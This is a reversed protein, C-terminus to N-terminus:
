RKEDSRRIVMLLQLAFVEPWLKALFKLLFFKKKVQSYGFLREIKFGNDLAFEKLSKKTFFRLHTSDMIGGRPNYDFLGFMLDIRQKIFAINPVSIIIEGNKNTKTALVNLLRDPYVLHELVDACIICDYKQILKDLVGSDSNLDLCYTNRFGKEKAQFLADKDLEIGDVVCKKDKILKVGLNGTNCGVDLCVASNPVLDYVFNNFCGSYISALESQRNEM